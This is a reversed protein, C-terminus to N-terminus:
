RDLEFEPWDHQWAQWTESHAARRLGGATLERGARRAGLRARMPRAQPATLSITSRYAIAWDLQGNWLSQEGQAAAKGFYQGVGEWSLGFAALLTGAGAAATQSFLLLVLGAVALLLVAAAPLLLNRALARKAFDHLRSAVQEATGVYDSLHLLDKAAVDASLISRWVGGQIRLKAPDSASAHRELQEEWLVLSNLVSHAAHPPLKTALVLLQQKASPIGAAVDARAGGCLAELEYGLTFALGRFHESIYLAQLAKVRFQEIDESDQEPPAGPLAPLGARNSLRTASQGMQGSLVAWMGSPDGGLGPDDDPWPVHEGKTVWDRAVGVRWGLLFAAAIDPDGTEPSWQTATGAFGGAVDSVQGPDPKKAPEDKGPADTHVAAM